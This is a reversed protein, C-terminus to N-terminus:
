PFVQRDYLKRIRPVSIRPFPSIRHLAVGNKPIPQHLLKDQVSLVKPIVGFILSFLLRCNGRKDLSNLYSLNLEFPYSGINISWCPRV